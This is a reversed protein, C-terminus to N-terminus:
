LGIHIFPAWHYPLTAADARHHESDALDRAIPQADPTGARAALTHYRHRRAPGDLERVSLQATQLAEAVGDGALLREYLAIMTLCAATDDVPWLSVIAHQVGATVAARVLGIIDGGATATGRGTHCASLVVLDAALDLGMVDGVALRDEGALAIYSRHPAQEDLIGHAAIHLIPRNPTQAVVAAATAQWGVLPTGGGLLRAITAVETATGPLASLGQGPAYAPDGILLAPQDLRPVASGRRRRTVLGASPLVSVPLQQGILRTGFPLAHFPVLSLAGDPVVLMRRHGALADAVPEIAYAALAAAAGEDSRQRACTSHFTRAAYYLDRARVPIREHRVRGRSVAWIVLEEDCAAYLLLVTDDPLAKQVAALSSGAQDAHRGSLLAPALRAVDSEAQHLADEAAVIRTRIDEVTPTQEVPKTVEGVLGEYTAALASGARLWRRAADRPLGAPVDALADLTGIAVGRCRDALEFATAVEADALADSTQDALGLHALIATRYVQAVVPDDTIASRMADRVLLGTRRDIESIAEGALRAADSHRGLAGAIEARTAAMEWPRETPQSWGEAEILGQIEWAKAPEGAKLFILVARELHMAGEQWAQHAVVAAEARRGLRALMLVQWYRLDPENRREVESLVQRVLDDAQERLGAEELSLSRHALVSWETEPDNDGSTPGSVPPAGSLLASVEASRAAGLAILEPDRLRTAMGKLEFALEVARIWFREREGESNARLRGIAEATEAVLLVVSAANFNATSILDIFARSILDDETRVPLERALCRAARLAREAMLVDGSERWQAARALVLRALGRGYATSGDTAAWRGVPTLTDAPVDEGAALRDLLGHVEILRLLAAEGSQAAHQRAEALWEACVTASGSLRACHALRLAVAARGRPSDTDVYLRDAEAYRVQAAAVDGHTTLPVSVDDVRLGLLEPHSTPELLLDGEVRLLHASAIPDQAACQRVIHWLGAMDANGQMIQHLCEAAPQRVTRRLSAMEATGRMLRHLYDAAFQRVTRWLGTTDASGRPLRHLCEVYTLCLYAQVRPVAFEDLRKAVARFVNQITPLALMLAKDPGRVLDPQGALSQGYRTMTEQLRAAAFQGASMSEAIGRGSQLNPILKLGLHAVLATMSGGPIGAGTAQDWGQYPYFLDESSPATWGGGLSWNVDLTRAATALATAVIGVHGDDGVRGDDAVAELTRLARKPEGAALAAAAVVLPRERDPISDLASPDQFPTLDGSLQEILLLEAILGASELM